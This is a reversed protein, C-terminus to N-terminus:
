SQPVAFVLRWVLHHVDISEYTHILAYEMVCCCIAGNMRSSVWAHEGKKGPKRTGADDYWYERIDVLFRGNFVRVNVFRKNSIQPLATVFGHLIYWM